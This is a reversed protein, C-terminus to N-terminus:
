TFGGRDFEGHRAVLVAGSFVDEGSLKGAFEEVKVVLEKEGIRLNM